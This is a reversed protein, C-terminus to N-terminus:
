LLDDDRDTIGLWILRDVEQLLKNTEVAFAEGKILDDSIGEEALDVKNGSGCSVERKLV